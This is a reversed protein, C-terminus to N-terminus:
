KQKVFDNWPIHSVVERLESALTYICALDEWTRKVCGGEILAEWVFRFVGLRRTTSGESIFMVLAM